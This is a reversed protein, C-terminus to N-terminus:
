KPPRRSCEQQIDSGTASGTHTMVPPHTSNLMFMDRHLDCEPTILKIIESKYVVVTSRYGNQVMQSYGMSGLAAYLTM